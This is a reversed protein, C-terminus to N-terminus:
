CDPDAESSAFFPLDRDPGQDRGCARILGAEPLLDALHHLEQRMASM